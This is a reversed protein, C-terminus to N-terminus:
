DVCVWFLTMGRLDVSWWGSALRGAACVVGTFFVVSM